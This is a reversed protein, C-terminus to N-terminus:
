EIKTLETSGLCVQLLAQGQIVSLAGVGMHEEVASLRPYKAEGIRGPDQPMQAIWVLCELLALGRTGQGLLQRMGEAHGGGPNKSGQQVLEAPVSGQGVLPGLCADGERALM